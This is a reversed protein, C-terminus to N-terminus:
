CKIFNNVYNVPNNVYFSIKKYGFTFTFAKKTVKQIKQFIECIQQFFRKKERSNIKTFPGFLKKERTDLKAFQPDM